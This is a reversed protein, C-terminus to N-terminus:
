MSIQITTRIQISPPVSLPPPPPPPFSSLSARNKNMRERGGNYEVKVSVSPYSSEEEKKLLLEASPSYLQPARTPQPVMGGAVLHGPGMTQPEMQTGGMAPNVMQLPPMIIGQPQNPLPTSNSIPMPMKMRVGGMNPNGPVNPPMGPAPISQGMSVGSSVAAATSSLQAVLELQRKLEDQLSRIYNAADALIVYKPRKRQSECEGTVSIPVLTRLEEFYFNLRERRLKEVDSHLIKGTTTKRKKLANGGEGENEENVESKTGEIEQNVESKREESM